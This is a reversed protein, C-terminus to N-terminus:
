GGWEMVSVKREPGDLDVNGFGAAGVAFASVAPLVCLVLHRLVFGSLYVRGQGGGPGEGEDGAGDLGGFTPM